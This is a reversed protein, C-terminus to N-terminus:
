KKEDKRNDKSIFKVDGYGCMTLLKAVVHIRIITAEIEKKEKTTM